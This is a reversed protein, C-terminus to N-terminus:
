AKKPAGKADGDARDDIAKELEDLRTNLGNQKRWLLAIWVMLILWLAAYAEVLLTEGSYQEKGESAEFGSSRSPDASPLPATSPAASPIVDQFRM